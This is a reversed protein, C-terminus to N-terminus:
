QAFEILIRNGSKKGAAIADKQRETFLYGRYERLLAAAQDLPLKTIPVGGVTHSDVGDTARGEVQAELMRVMKENHTESKDALPDPLVTLRYVDRTTERGYDYELVLAGNYVGASVSSTDPGDFSYIWNVSDEASGDAEFKEGTKLNQFVYKASKLEAVDSPASERWRTLDGIIAESPCGSHTTIPM